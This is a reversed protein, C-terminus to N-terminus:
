FKVDLAAQLFIVKASSLDNMALKYLHDLYEYDIQKLERAFNAQQEENLENWYQLVHEQNYKQLLFGLEEKNM